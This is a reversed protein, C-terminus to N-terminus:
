LRDDKLWHYPIHDAGNYVGFQYGKDRFYKIVEPLKELTTRKEHMLVVEFNKNTDKKINELIKNPDQNRSEVKWDETDINWDWMKIGADVVSEIPIKGKLYTSGYPARVLKADEGTVDHILSLTEKMEPVFQKKDYLTPNDHTMSHAGVYNGEKVARKVNEQLAPNKIQNGIMFFTAKINEKKLIDLFQGLYQSPGDDFTLYVWKGKPMGNEDKEVKPEEQKKEEQHQAVVAKSNQGTAEKAPAGNFKGIVLFIVVATVLTIGLALVVKMLSGIKLKM